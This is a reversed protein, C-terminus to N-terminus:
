SIGLLKDKNRVLSQKNMIHIDQNKKSCILYNNSLKNALLLFMTDNKIDILIDKDISTIIPPLSYDDVVKNFNLIHIAISFAIDNRFIKSSFRYLDAFYFYNDRIYEVLDFVLKSNKNKSFLITTAWFMKISTDSIYNDQYEFRSEFYFDNAKKSILFDQDVNWYNSLENSCILFDSDILLTRDYPTLSWASCRDKNLFPVVSNHSIGDHLNRNQTSYYNDSLIIHQFTDELEKIKNSKRAWALSNNDTVLSVPVKLNKKAFLASIISLDLYDVERSNHAYILVGKNM